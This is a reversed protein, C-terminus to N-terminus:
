RTRVMRITLSSDPSPTIEAAMATRMMAARPAIMHTPKRVIQPLVLLWVLVWILWIPRYRARRQRRYDACRPPAATAPPPPRAARLPAAPRHRCPEAEDDEHRKQQECNLHEVGEVRRRDHRRDSIVRRALHRTSVSPRRGRALCLRLRALSESSEPRPDGKVP